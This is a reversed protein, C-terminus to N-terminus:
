ATQPTPCRRFASVAGAAMEAWESRKPEPFAEWAQRLVVPDSIGKIIGFIAIALEEIPKSM